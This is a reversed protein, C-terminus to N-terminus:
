GTTDLMPYIKRVTLYVKDGFYNHTPLTLILSLKLIIQKCMMAPAYFMSDQINNM